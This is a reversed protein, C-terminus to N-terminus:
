FPAPPALLLSLELAQLGPVLCMASLVRDRARDRDRQTKERERESARERGGEKEVEDTPKKIWM